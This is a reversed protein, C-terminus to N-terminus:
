YNKGRLVVLATEFLIKVDLWLSWHEIYELDLKVWEDFDSPKGRIQWLSTMGPKVALKQKQWDTFRAYEYQLPPRPGVMSMDGILVSWLQPLEDLSYRRLIKGVRTVRPDDQMKFVPGRMENEALLKEKLADADRVMTRFKWSTFPKGDKGVVRWEFLIPAGSTVRIALAILLLLPSLLILLLASVLIDLVRKLFRQVRYSLSM